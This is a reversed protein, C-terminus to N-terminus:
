ADIEGGGIEEFPHNERYGEVITALTEAQRDEEDITRLIEVFLDRVGTRDARVSKLDATEEYYEGKHQEYYATSPTNYAVHPPHFDFVKLGPPDLLSEIPPLEHQRNRLWQDDMWYVPVQVTGDPMWFPSLKSQRYALYNSEYELGLETYHDRLNTYVFLGHSRLGRAEPFRDLLETLVREHDESDFFNPHIAREHEGISDVADATSFLTAPVDYRDLLSLTDELVPNPAWETDVTIAIM